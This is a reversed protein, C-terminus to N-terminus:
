RGSISPRSYRGSIGNGQAGSTSVSVRKTSGSSISARALSPSAVLLSALVTVVGARKLASSSDSPHRHGLV